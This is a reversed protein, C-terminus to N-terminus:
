VIREYPALLTLASFPLTPRDGQVRERYTVSLDGVRKSSVGEDRQRQLYFAKVIEICAQELDHPLNRVRLERQADPAPAAEDVLPEGGEVEVYGAAASAVVKWGNNAEEEFGAALVADGAVLAPLNSASDTYRQTLAVAALTGSVVDDSPLLYGGTYTVIYDLQDQGPPRQEGMGWGWGRTDQWSRAYYILGADPDTLEWGTVPANQYLISSVTLVPTRSVMLETAGWGVLKESITARGFQRSCHQEIAVTAARILADLTADAGSDKSVLDGLQAKVAARTTYGRTAAAVAASPM